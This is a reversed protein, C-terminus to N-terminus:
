EGGFNQPDDEMRSERGGDEESFSADKRKELGCGGCTDLVQRRERSETMSVVVPDRGSLEGRCM